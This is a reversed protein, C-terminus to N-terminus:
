EEPTRAAYRDPASQPPTRDPFVPLLGGRVGSKLSMVLSRTSSPIVNYLCYKPNCRINYQFRQNRYLIRAGKPASPPARRAGKHAGPPVGGKPGPRSKGVELGAWDAGPLPISLWGRCYFLFPSSSACPFCIFFNPTM